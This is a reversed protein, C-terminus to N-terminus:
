FSASGTSIGNKKTLYFFIWRNFYKSLNVFQCHERFKINPAELFHKFAGLFKGLM